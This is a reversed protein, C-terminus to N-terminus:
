DGSLNIEGNLVKMYDEYNEKLLRPIDLNYPCRSVCERCESCDLTKNMKEQYEESLCHEKPFRRIWLSMRAASFIEIGERCPLCYGCGRCFNDGLEEKDKEIDKILTSDLKITKNQYSLFEDLESEKQIGWIPLVNKFDEM